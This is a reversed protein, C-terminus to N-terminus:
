LDLLESRDRQRSSQSAQKRIRYILFTIWRSPQKTQGFDFDSYSRAVSEATFRGEVSKSMIIEFMEKFEPSNAAHPYLSLVDLVRLIGYKVAPYRLKLFDSGIGFGYPRWPENRRRWHELLLDIARNLREDNRYREYKGLFMLINLNDMPCSESAQLAQGVSRRASCHWGGDLRQTQFVKEAFKIIHPDNAFGMNALSSLVITSICLYSPKTGSQMVYLGDDTQRRLLESITDTIGIDECKLGADSLFFLDWFANGTSTYTLSGSRLAPIGSDLNNIRQIISQIQPDEIVISAESQDGLLQTEVAFSIWSPGEKLWDLISTEM